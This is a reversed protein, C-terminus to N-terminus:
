PTFARVRVVSALGDDLPQGQCALETGQWCNSRISANGVVVTIHAITNPNFNPRVIANGASNLSVQQFSFSGTRRKIYLAAVTGRSRNALDIEIRLATKAPLGRGPTFRLSRATLHDQRLSKSASRSSPTLTKNLALPSSPYASGESYNARPATNAAHFAAWARPLPLGRSSLERSLALTSHDDPAGAAGDIRSFVGLMFDLSSTDFLETLFRIFIWGGYEFGGSARDLSVGPQLLPSTALYQRNDDIDDYLEDEIWSATAELFWRDELFDYAFQVAHFFEHAATVQLSLLPERGFEEVSFDNDLVCFASVDLRENTAAAPDDTTCYGYYGQDGLNSLYVDLRADPNPSTAASDELPARFGMEDVQRSWVEELVQLTLEVHDPVGITGTQDEPPPADDTTPVWHLCIKEGCINQSAVTFGAGDPDSAGDTPRALLRDTRLRMSPSLHRYNSVVDRLDLTLSSSAPKGLISAVEARIGIPPNMGPSAAPAAAPIALQAGWILAVTLAVRYRM